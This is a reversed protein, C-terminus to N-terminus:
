VRSPTKRQEQLQIHEIKRLQEFPVILRPRAFNYYASNGHYHNLSLKLLVDDGLNPAPLVHSTIVNLVVELEGHQRGRHMKDERRYVRVAPVSPLLINDTM